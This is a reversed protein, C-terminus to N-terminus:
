RRCRREPDPRDDDYNPKETYVVEKYGQAILQQETPNTIWGTLTKIRDNAVFLTNNIIKGFM